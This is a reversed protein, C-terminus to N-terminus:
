CFALLDSLKWVKNTLGAAMAPTQRITQHVRCWNYCTMFIATMAVHNAFKKSHGNTLRTYRRTSMRVSLNHREVHSTSIERPSPDGFKIKVEVGTCEGPSYKADRHNSYDDRYIKVCQAYSHCREGMTNIIANWYCHLGDTTVHIPKAFRHALGGMFEHADRTDRNGVHWNVILKSNPDIGTWTWVDGIGAEGKRHEPINRKKCHCFAWLEDCEIRKSKLNVVREDHFAQCAEAFSVILRLITTKAVGTMRVISAISNGEVLAGIVTARESTSLKNM